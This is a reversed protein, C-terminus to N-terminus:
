EEDPTSPLSHYVLESSNSLAEQLPSMRKPQADRSAQLMVAAPAVGPPMLDAPVGQWLQARFVRDKEEAAAEIREMVERRRVEMERHEDFLRRADSRAIAPRTLDDTVVEVGRSALYARWGTAPVDLDLALVSLPVLDAAEAQTPADISAVEAAGRNRFM